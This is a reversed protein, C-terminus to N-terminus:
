GRPPGATPELLAAEREGGAAGLRDHAVADPRLARPPALLPAIARTCREVARRLEGARARSTPESALEHLLVAQRAVLALAEAVEQVMSALRPGGLSPPPKTRSPAPTGGVPPLSAPSGLLLLLRGGSGLALERLGGARALAARLAPELSRGPRPPEQGAGAVARGFAANAFVLRGEADLVAVGEEVAGLAATLTAEAAEGAAIRDAQARAARRGEEVWPRAWGPDAAAASPRGAAAAALDDLAAVAPVLIRRRVWFEALAATLALLALALLWPFAAGLGARRLAAPEVRHELLLGSGGLPRRFVLAAEGGDLADPGSSGAEVLRVTGAPWDLAAVLARVRERVGAVDRPLPDLVAEADTPGELLAEVMRQQERARAQLEARFAARGQSWALAALLLCALAGPLGALALLKTASRAPEGGPKARM